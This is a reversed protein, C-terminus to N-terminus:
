TTWAPPSTNKSVHYGNKRAVEIFDHINAIGWETCVAITGDSLKILEHTKTFYREKQNFVKGGKKYLGLVAYSGQLEKPFIHSLEQYNLNPNNSVFDRIIALVLRNKGHRDPSNNYSYKTFYKTRKSASKKQIGNLSDLLREIVNAPTDDFGQELKGLRNYIETPIEVTHLM